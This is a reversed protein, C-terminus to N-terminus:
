IEDRTEAEHWRAVLYYAAAGVVAGAGNSFEDKWEFARGAHMALQAVEMLLGWLIAFLVVMLIRKRHEEAHLTWCALVSLGFYMGIHVLKDFGPFLQLSPVASSPMVSLLAVITLYALTLFIRLRQSISFM